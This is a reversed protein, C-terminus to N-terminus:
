DFYGPLHEASNTSPEGNDRSPAATLIQADDIGAFRRANDYVRLIDAGYNTNAAWRGSLGEWTPACGRSVLAFRSDYLQDGMPLPHRCAYAYLHQIQATVGDNISEFALGKVGLRTVGLGCFNNQELKVATGGTFKFWGTEIIAQCLAIDPRVGYRAGITFYAEAIEPPFDSNHSQIYRVMQEMEMVPEGLIPTQAGASTHALTCLLIILIQRLSKM